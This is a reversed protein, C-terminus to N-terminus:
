ANTIHGEAQYTPEHWSRHGLFLDSIWPSLILNEFLIFQGKKWFFGNLLVDSLIKGLTKYHSSLLIKERSIQICHDASHVKSPIREIRGRKLSVLVSSGLVIRDTWNQCCRGKIFLLSTRQVEQEWGLGMLMTIEWQLYITKGQPTKLAKNWKLCLLYKPSSGVQHSSAQFLSKVVMFGVLGYCMCPGWRDWNREWWPHAATLSLSLTRQYRLFIQPPSTTYSTGM